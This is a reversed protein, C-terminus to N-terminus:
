CLPSEQLRDSDGKQFNQNFSRVYSIVYTSVDANGSIVAHEWFDGM